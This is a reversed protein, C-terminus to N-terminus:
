FLCINKIVKKSIVADNYKQFVSIEEGFNESIRRWM